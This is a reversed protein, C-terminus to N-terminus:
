RQAVLRDTTGTIDLVRAVQPAPSVVCLEIGVREAAVRNALLAGLGASDMFTVDALDVVIRTVPQRVLDALVRRLRVTTAADLEGAVRVVTEGATDICSVELPTEFQLSEV